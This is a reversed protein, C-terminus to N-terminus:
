IHRHHLPSRQFRKAIAPHTPSSVSPRQRTEAYQSALIAALFATGLILMLRILSLTLTAM